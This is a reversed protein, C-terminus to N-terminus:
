IKKQKSGSTKRGQTTRLVMCRGGRASKGLRLVKASTKVGFVDGFNTNIFKKSIRCSNSCRCFPDATEFTERFCEFRFLFVPATPAPASSPLFLLIACLIVPVIM